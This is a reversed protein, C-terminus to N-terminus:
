YQMSSEAPLPQIRLKRAVGVVLWWWMGMKCLVCVCGEWGLVGRWLCVLFCCNFLDLSGVGRKGYFDRRFFPNFFVCMASLAGLKVFMEGFKPFGREIKLRNRIEWRYVYKIPFKLFPFTNVHAFEAWRSYFPPLPSYTKLTERPAALM